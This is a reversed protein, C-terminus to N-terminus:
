MSICVTTSPAKTFYTALLFAVFCLRPYGRIIKECV